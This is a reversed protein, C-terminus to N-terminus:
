GGNDTPIRTTLSAPSRRDEYDQECLSRIWGLLHPDRRLDSLQLLQPFDAQLFYLFRHAAARYYQPSATLTQLHAAFIEQIHLPPPQSRPRRTM